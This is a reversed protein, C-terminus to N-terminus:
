TALQAPEAPDDGDGAGGDGGRALTKGALDAILDVVGVLREVSPEAPARFALETVPVPHDLPAGRGPHVRYLLAREPWVAVWGDLTAAARVRLDEDLLRPTLGAADHLRFRGDFVADGTQTRPGAVNPPPPHAGAAMLGAARALMTWSPADPPEHDGGGFVLDISELGAGGQRDPGRSLRLSFPIENRQGSLVTQEHGNGRRIHRRASLATMLRSVYAEWVADPIPPTSFRPPPVALQSEEEQVRMAGGAITLMGVVGCMYQLPWAFGYGGAVILALGLGISRRARSDSTICASVTWVAAAAASVYLAMTEPPAGPGLEMGLGRAALEMGVEYHKRLIVAGISAVFASVVMPGPRSLARLLPRPGLWLPAALATLAVAHQGVERLRDPLNSWRAEDVDTFIHLKLTGYYHVAFPLLVLTFGFRTRLDGPSLWLAVALTALLIVFSTELPFAVNSTGAAFIAWLSLALFGAGAVAVVPRMVRSFGPAAARTWLKFVTVALALATALHFLFLGVVDLNRHWGPPAKGGTPRLVPVALRNLVLEIVVMFLLLAVMDLQAVWKRFRM